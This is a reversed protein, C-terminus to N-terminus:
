VTYRIIHLIYNICQIDVTYYLTYHGGPSSSTVRERLHTCGAVLDAMFLMLYSYSYM